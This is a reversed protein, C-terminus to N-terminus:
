NTARRARCAGVTRFRPGRECRTASAGAHHAVVRRRAERRGRPGMPEVRAGVAVRGEHSPGRRAGPLSPQSRQRAPALCVAPSFSDFTTWEKRNWCRPFDIRGPMAVCRQGATSLSTAVQRAGLALDPLKSLAPWAYLGSSLGTSVSSCAGCRPGSAAGSLGPNDSPYPPAIARDFTGISAPKNPQRRGIPYRDIGRQHARRTNPSPQYRDFHSHRHHHAKQHSAFLLAGHQSSGEDSPM